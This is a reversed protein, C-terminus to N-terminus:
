YSLFAVFASAASRSSDFLEVIQYSLLFFAPYFLEAKSHALEAPARLMRQIWTSSQVLAVSAAGIASGFLLDSLYHLGLYLRTFLVFVTVYALAMIGVRKSLYLLGFGLAFFLAGHDSPFSSWDRLVVSMGDPLTFPLGGEHMPRSRFPLLVVLIRTLFLALFCGTFTSLILVRQALGAEQKIPATSQDNAHNKFWYFWYILILPAAKFLNNNSLFVLAQDFIPTQTAFANVASSVWWDFDRM